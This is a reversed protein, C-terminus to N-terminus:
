KSNDYEGGKKTRPKFTKGQRRAKKASQQHKAYQEEISPSRKPPEGGKKTMGAQRARGEISGGKSPKPGKKPAAGKVNARQQAFQQEISGGATKPPKVTKVPQTANPNYRSPAPQNLPGQQSVPVPQTANPNFTRGPPATRPGTQGPAMGPGGQYAPNVRGQAPMRPPRQGGMPSITPTARGALTGAAEAGSMLAPAMMPDTVMNGTAAIIKSAIGGRAIEGSDELTGALLEGYQAPERGTEPDFGYVAANLPSVDYGTGATNGAAAALARAPATAVHTAGQMVAAAPAGIGSIVGGLARELASAGQIATDAGTPSGAGYKRKYEEYLRMAELINGQGVDSM